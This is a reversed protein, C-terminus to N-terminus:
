LSRRIDERSIEDKHKKPGTENKGRYLGTEQKEWETSFMAKSQKQKCLSVGEFFLFGKEQWIGFALSCVRFELQSM